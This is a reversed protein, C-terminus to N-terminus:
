GPGDLSYDVWRISRGIACSYSCDHSIAMFKSRGCREPQRERHLVALHLRPITCSPGALITWDYSCHGQINGTRTATEGPISKHWSGGDQTTDFEQTVNGYSASVIKQTPNTFSSSLRSQAASRFTVTQKTHIVASSYLHQVAADATCFILQALHYTATSKSAENKAAGRVKSTKAFPM